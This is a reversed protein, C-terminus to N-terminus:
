TAYGTPDSDARPMGLKQTLDTVEYDAKNLTIQQIHGAKDRYLVRMVADTTQFALPKGATDPAIEDPQSNLDIGAWGREGPNTLELRGSPLPFLVSRSAASYVVTPDGGAGSAIDYDGGSWGAGASTIERLTSGASRFVVRATSDVIHGVPDGTIVPRAPLTSTLNRGRWADELRFEWLENTESRLLVRPTSGVVLAFPTGAIKVLSNTLDACQWAAGANLYLERLYGNVDRYLARAVRGAEYGFLDGAAKPAGTLRSLSTRTWPRDPPLWLEQVEGEVDVYIVRHIGDFHTKYAFPRGTAPPAALDGTLSVFSWTGAKDLALEIVQDQSRFVVHALRGLRAMAEESVVAWQHYATLTVADGMTEVAAGGEPQVRLMLREVKGSADPQLQTTVAGRNPVSWTQTTNAPDPPVAVISKDAKLALAMDVGDRRVESLLYGDPSLTWLQRGEVGVPQATVTFAGDDDLKGVSLVLGGALNRLYFFTPRLGVLEAYGSYYLFRASRRAALTQQNRRVFDSLIDICAQKERDPLVSISPCLDGMGITQWRTYSQLSDSWKGLNKVYGGEGGVANLILSQAEQLSKQSDKDLNTSGWGAKGEVGGGVWPTTVSISTQVENAHKKAEESATENSALEREETSYLKGGVTLRRALFHGFEKLVRLLREDKQGPAAMALQIAALFEDSACPSELPLSLEVKPLSFSSTIYVKRGSSASGKMHSEETSRGWGAGGSVFASTFAASLRFDTTDIGSSMAKAEIESATFQTAFNADLEPKRAYIRAPGTGGESPGGQRTQLARALVARAADLNARADEVALRKMALRDAAFAAIRKQGQLEECWDEARLLESRLRREQDSAQQVRTQVADSLLKQLERRVEARAEARVVVLDVPRHTPLTAADLAQQWDLELTTLVRRVDLVDTPVKALGALTGELAARQEALVDLAAIARGSPYDDPVTMPLLLAAMADTWATTRELIAEQLKTVQADVDSMLTPALSVHLHALDDLGDLRDVMRAPYARLRAEVAVLQKDLVMLEDRLGGSQPTAREPGGDQGATATTDALRERKWARALAAELARRKCGLLYLRGEDARREAQRVIRSELSAVEAVKKRVRGVFDILHRQVAPEPRGFAADELDKISALLDRRLSQSEVPIGTEAKEDPTGSPDLDIEIAADEADISRIRETLIQEYLSQPGAETSSVGLALLLRGKRDIAERLLEDVTARPKGADAPAWREIERELLVQEAEQRALEQALEAVRARMDGEMASDATPGSLVPRFGLRFVSDQSPDFVVGHSVGIRAFLDEAKRATLSFFDTEDRAVYDVDDLDYPSTGTSFDRTASPDFGTPAAAFDLKGVRVRSLQADLRERDRDELKQKDEKDLRDADRQGREIEWQDKALAVKAAEAAALRDEAADSAAQRAAREATRAARRAIREADREAESAAREAARKEELAEAARRELAEPTNNELKAALARLEAEQAQRELQAELLAKQARYRATFM